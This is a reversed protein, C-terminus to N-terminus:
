RRWPGTTVPATDPPIYWLRMGPGIRAIAPIDHLWAYARGVWEGALYTESVAIWGTERRHLNLFSSNMIGISDPSMTGFYAIHISDRIGRARLTDRLRYLDQGWDLNSDVLVREPHDGALLNFYALHDPHARVVTFAAGAALAVSAARAAFAPRQRWLELVGQAAILAMLPYIPLVLRVGLDVRVCLSIGLVTMASLTPAAGTWDRERLLRRMATAAGLIALLLLPLPTKVLVAIPYYYWWGHRRPEGLLFTEHGTNGHLFFVRVGEVFPAAHFRYAAAIVLMTVALAAGVQGLNKAASDDGFRWRREAWGRAAYCVALPGAVFALASLRTCIALGVGLGAFLARGLTPRRAWRVAALIALVTAAACALDTTALGAHALINPNTVVFFTAIAGGLEGALDRGWAWVAACLLLFFAIVGHRASALTEVFHTGSGLIAAGEDFVMKAGHSREGRLYPGIALAIRGLPPHPLDYTYEGTSLWQLGAAIHAPEDVTASFVRATSLIALAAIAIMLGTAIRWVGARREPGPEKLADMM